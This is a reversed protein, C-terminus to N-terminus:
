QALLMKIVRRELRKCRKFIDELFPRRKRTEKSRLYRRASDVRDVCFIVNNSFQSRTLDVERGDPLRNWWHHQHRCHLIRGGFYKYVLLATPLCQGFAPNEPTWQSRIPPFCTERSWCRRIIKELQKLTM